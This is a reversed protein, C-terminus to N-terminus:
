LNHYVQCLENRFRLDSQEFCSTAPVHSERGDTTVCCFPSGTQCQNTQQPCSGPVAGLNPSTFARDILDGDEPAPEPAPEAVPVAIGQALLVSFPLLVSILLFKM